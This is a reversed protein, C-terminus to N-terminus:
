TRRRPRSWGSRPRSTPSGALPTGCCRPRARPPGADPWRAWPWPGRGCPTSTPRRARADHFPRPCTMPTSRVAHLSTPPSLPTHPPPPTLKALCTHSHTIRCPLLLLHLPAYPRSAAPCSRSHSSLPSWLFSWSPPLALSLALVPVPSLSLSSICPTHTLLALSLLPVPHLAPDLRPRRAASRRPPSFSAPSRRSLRPARVQRQWLRRHHGLEPRPRLRLPRHPAFLLLLTLAPHAFLGSSRSLLSAVCRRRALRRHAVLSSATTLRVPWPNFPPPLLPRSARRRHLEDCMHKIDRDRRHEEEKFSVNWLLIARLAPFAARDAQALVARIVDRDEDALEHRVDVGEEGDAVRNHYNWPDGILLHKLTPHGMALLPGLDLGSVSFTILNPCLAFVEAPALLIESSFEDIRLTLLQRGVKELISLILHHSDPHPDLDDEHHLLHLEQLNALPAALVNNLAEM